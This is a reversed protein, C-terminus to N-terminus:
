PPFSSITGLIGMLLRSSKATQYVGPTADTLLAICLSVFSDKSYVLLHFVIAIIVSPVLTSPRPSMPGSAAMGTISPFATMKLYRPPTSARGIHMFRLSGSFSTSSTFDSSGLKPPMFRSSM